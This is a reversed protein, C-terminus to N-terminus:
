HGKSFTGLLLPVVAMLGAAVFWRFALTPRYPIAAVAAILASTALTIMAAFVVTAAGGYVELMPVGQVMGSFPNLFLRVGLFMAALGMVRFNWVRWPSRKVVSRFPMDIPDLSDSVYCIEETVVEQACICAITNCACCCCGACGGTSCCTTESRLEKLPRFGAEVRYDRAHGEDICPGQCVPRYPVFTEDLDKQCQVAVVTANTEPVCLFRVRVDGVEHKSFLGGLTPNRVLSFGPRAYYYGDKQNAFFTLGHAAIRQPLLQMAPEFRRFSNVMDDTLLFAGLEVRPCVHTATGLRLGTPPRPNEPSPKRFRLSDQHTTTWEAHFRPQCRRVRGGELWTRTTQVWQFVEVTSQLKLCRSVAVDRFQPDQLYAAGKARGQVHVLRGRNAKSVREAEVSIVEELGRASLAESRVTREENFWHIPVALMIFLIGFFASAVGGVAQAAGISQTRNFVAGEGLLGAPAFAATTLNGAPAERVMAPLVVALRRGENGLPRIHAGTSLNASRSANSVAEASHHSSKSSVVRIVASTSLQFGGFALAAFFAICSSLPRPISSSTWRM